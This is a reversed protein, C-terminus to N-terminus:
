ASYSRSRTDPFALAVVRDVLGEIDTACREYARRSSGMPDDVDDDPHEGLLDTPRRGASARALWADLPEPGLRPGTAGARRALERLTFTRPFAEPVLAVAERVHERAMGIVLDAGAVMEATMPRSRHAGLDLGRKAMARVGHASAPVGQSVLGASHVHADIGAAALRHRLLAEGM